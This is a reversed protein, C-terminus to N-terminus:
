LKTISTIAIGVFSDNWRKEENGVLSIIGANKTEFTVYYKSTNVALWVNKAREYVQDMTYPGFGDKHSGIDAATEKWQLIPVKKYGNTNPLPEYNFKYYDRNTIKGNMVTVRTSDPPAFSATASTYIYSNNADAKFKQWADLSANFEPKYAEKKCSVAL